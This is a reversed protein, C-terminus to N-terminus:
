RGEAKAIAALLLERVKAWNMPAAHANANHYVTGGLALSARCAELLDPAAAILRGNASVEEVSVGKACAVRRRVRRGSKLTEGEM